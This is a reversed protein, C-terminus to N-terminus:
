TVKLTQRIVMVGFTSVCFVSCMKTIVTIWQLLSIMATLAWGLREYKRVELYFDHASYHRGNKRDFILDIIM